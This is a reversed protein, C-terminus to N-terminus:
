KLKRGNMILIVRFYKRVNTMHRFSAYLHNTTQILLTGVERYKSMNLLAQAKRLLAKVNTPELRLCQECDTIAMVLNNM